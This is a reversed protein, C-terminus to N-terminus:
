PKRPGYHPTKRIVGDASRLYNKRSWAGSTVLSKIMRAVTSPALEERRAIEQVTLMHAPPKELKSIKLANFDKLLSM